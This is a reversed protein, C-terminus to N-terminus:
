FGKKVVKRPSSGFSRVRSSIVKTQRKCLYSARYMLEDLQDKYDCSNRDIYYCCNDPFHVLGSESAVADGLASVWARHIRYALAGETRYGGLSYYADKNFLLLMHYHELQTQSGIERAWVYRLANAYIRTGSKSRKCEHAKLQAKLSDIFRTMLRSRNILENDPIHLEVRLAFVRSYDYLQDQITNDLTTLYQANLGKGNNYLSYPYTQNTM